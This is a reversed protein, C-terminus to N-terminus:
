SVLSWEVVLSSEVGLGAALAAALWRVQTDRIKDKGARKAEAFLVRDDQWAYMDFCGHRSGARAYVEELWARRAKPLEIHGDLAVRQRNRYTDVWAGQWGASEFLRLIVLEAFLPEGRLDLVPKGGYTDPIAAGKWTRFQPTTKPLLVCNGSHLLIQEQVTPQLEAPYRM